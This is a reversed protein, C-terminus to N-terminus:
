QDECFPLNLSWGSVVVSGSPNNFHLSVIGLEPPATFCISSSDMAQPFTAHCLWKPFSRLPNTYFQIGGKYDMFGVGFYKDLPFSVYKWAFALVCINM